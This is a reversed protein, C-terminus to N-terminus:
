RLGSGGDVVESSLRANKRHAPGGRADQLEWCLLMTEQTVGDDAIRSEIDCSTNSLQACHLERRPLLRLRVLPRLLLHPAGEHPGHAGHVNLHFGRDTRM